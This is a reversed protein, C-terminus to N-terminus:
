CVTTFSRDEAAYFLVRGQQAVEFRGLCPRKSAVAVAMHLALVSKCCKPQGALIGVDQLGWLGEILWNQGPELAKLQAAKQVPFSAQERTTTDMSM